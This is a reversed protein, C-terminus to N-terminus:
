NSCLPKLLFRRLQSFTSTMPVKDEVLSTVGAFIENLSSLDIVKIAAELKAAIRTASEVEKRAIQEYKCAIANVEYGQRKAWYAVTASDLSGSLVVCKESAM